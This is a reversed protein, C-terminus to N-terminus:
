GGTGARGWDPGIAAWDRDLRAYRTQALRRVVARRAGEVALGAGAAAGVGALVAHERATRASLPRSVLRGEDDVWVPIAAGPGAVERAANLTGTRETGDPATWRATVPQRLRDEAAAARDPLAPEGPPAPGVVRAVATHRREQQVRASIQLAADAATGVLWGVLPTGLCLLLLALFAVWAEALDTARRLPNRRWRWLGGAAALM